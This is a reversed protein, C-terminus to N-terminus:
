KSWRRSWRNLSTNRYFLCPNVVNVSHLFNGSSLSQTFHKGGWAPMARGWTAPPPTPTWIHLIIVHFLCRDAPSVRVTTWSAPQAWSFCVKTVFYQTVFRQYLGWSKFPSSLIAHLHVRLSCDTRGTHARARARTHFQFPTTDGHGLYVYRRCSFTAARLFM